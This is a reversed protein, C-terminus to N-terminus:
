TYSDIWLQTYKSKSTRLPIGGQSAAQRNELDSVIRDQTPTSVPSVFAGSRTFFNTVSDIVTSTRAWSPVEDVHRKLEEDQLRNFGAAVGAAGSVESPFSGYGSGGGSNFPKDVM